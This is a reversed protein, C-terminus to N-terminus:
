KKSKQLLAYAGYGYVAALVAGIAGGLLYFSKNKEFVPDTARVFMFAAFIAAFVAWLLTGTLEKKAAAKPDNDAPPPTSM